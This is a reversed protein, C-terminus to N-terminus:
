AVPEAPHDPRKGATTDLLLRHATADWNVEANVLTGRKNKIARWRMPTSDWVLERGRISSAHWRTEAANSGTGEPVIFLGTTGGAEAALQLRRSATLDPARSLEAVVLGLAGSRLGEEATWLVDFARRAEV